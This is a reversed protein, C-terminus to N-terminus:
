QQLPIRRKGGKGWEQNNGGGEAEKEKIDKGERGGREEDKKIILYLFELLQLCYIVLM